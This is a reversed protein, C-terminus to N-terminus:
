KIMEKLNKLPMAKVASRAPKAKITIPEKTFPNIGPRAKTAPKHVRKLKLLGPITFVGPGKKGLDRKILKNMEDFVGAVQKRSLGVTTALTQYIESKTAAKPGNAKNEAM